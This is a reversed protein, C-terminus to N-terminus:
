AADFMLTTCNKCCEGKFITGDLLVDASREVLERGDSPSTTAVGSV